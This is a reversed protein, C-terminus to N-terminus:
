KFRANKSEWDNGTCIIKYSGSFKPEFKERANKLNSAYCTDYLKGDKTLEYKKM